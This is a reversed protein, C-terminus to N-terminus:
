LRFDLYKPNRTRRTQSCQPPSKQRYFQNPHSRPPNRSRHRQPEKRIAEQIQESQVDKLVRCITESLLENHQNNQDKKLQNLLASIVEENLIQALAVVAHHCVLFDEDNLASILVPVILKSRIKGLAVVASQRIWSYESKLAICLESIAEESCTKGLLSTKTNLPIYLNSVLAVTKEQFERKVEGALRAGLQWDVELALRVVRVVQEEDELLGLMLAIAETWEFLNLYDRQLEEDTLESVMWKLRMAAYYEQILQHHFELENDDEIQLLHHKLLGTVYKKVGFFRDSAGKKELFQELIDEANKRSIM